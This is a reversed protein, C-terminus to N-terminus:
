GDNGSQPYKDSLGNLGERDVTFSFQRQGNSTTLKFVFVMDYEGDSWVPVKKSDGGNDKVFNKAFRDLWGHEWAVFITAGQYNTKTLENELEKTETYGFKTNVPLGCQIATPEITALPRVYYYGPKGDVTETPNPAFIYQPQGYTGLLFKPLALSRNLGRITLQGLGGHPKEGHRICVITEVMSNTPDAAHVPLVGCFVLLVLYKKM